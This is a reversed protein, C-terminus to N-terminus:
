VGKCIWTIIGITVVSAAMIMPVFMVFFPGNHQKKRVVYIGILLFFALVLILIVVYRGFFIGCMCIGKLGGGGVFNELFKYTLVLLIYILVGAALTEGWFLSGKGLIQIILEVTGGRQQLLLQHGERHGCSTHGVRQNCDLVILFCPTFNLM